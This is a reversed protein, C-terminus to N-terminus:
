HYILSHNDHSKWIIWIIWSLLSFSFFAFLSNHFTSFHSFCFYSKITPLSTVDVGTQCNNIWNKEQWKCKELYMKGWKDYLLLINVKEYEWIVLVFMLALMVGSYNMIDAAIIGPIYVSSRRRAAKNPWYLM